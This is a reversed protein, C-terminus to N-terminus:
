QQHQKNQNQTTQPNQRLTLYTHVIRFSGIELKFLQFWPLCYDYLFSLLISIATHTESVDDHDHNASKSSRREAVHRFRRQYLQAVLIADVHAITSPQDFAIRADKEDINFRYSLQRNRRTNSSSFKNKEFVFFGRATRVRARGLHSVLDIFPTM